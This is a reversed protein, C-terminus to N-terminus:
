AQRMDANADAHSKPTVRSADVGVRLQQGSFRWAPWSTTHTAPIKSNRCHPRLTPLSGDQRPQRYKAPRFSLKCREYISDLLEAM